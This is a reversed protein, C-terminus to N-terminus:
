YLKVSPSWCGGMITAAESASVPYAHAIKQDISVDVAIHRSVEGESAGIDRMTNFAVRVQHASLFKQWLPYLEPHTFSDYKYFPHVDESVEFVCDFWEWFKCQLLDPDVDFFFLSPGNKTRDIITLNDIGGTYHKGNYSPALFKLGALRGAGQMYKQEAEAHRDRLNKILAPWESQSSSINGYRWYELALARSTSDVSVSAIAEVWEYDLRLTPAGEEGAYGTESSWDIPCRVLREAEEIVYQDPDSM